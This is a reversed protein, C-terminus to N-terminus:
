GQSRTNVSRGLPSSTRPRCNVCAGQVRHREMKTIRPFGHNLASSCFTAVEGDRERGCAFRHRRVRHGCRGKFEYIGCGCHDAKRAISAVIRGAEADSVFEWSPRPSSSPTFHLASSSTSDLLSSSGLKGCASSASSSSTSDLVSSSTLNSHSQQAMTSELKHLSLLCFLIRFIDTSHLRTLNLVVTTYPLWELIEESHGNQLNQRRLPPRCVWFQM